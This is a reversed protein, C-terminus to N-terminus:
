KLAFDGTRRTCDRPGHDAAVRGAKSAVRRELGPNGRAAEAVFGGLVLRMPVPARPRQDWVLACLKGDGDATATGFAWAADLIPRYAPM